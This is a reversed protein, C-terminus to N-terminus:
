NPCSSFKNFHNTNTEFYSMPNAKIYTKRRIRLVFFSAINERNISKTENELCYKISFKLNSSIIKLKVEKTNRFQEIRIKFLLSTLHSIHKSVLAKYNKNYMNIM